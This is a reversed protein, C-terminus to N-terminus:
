ALLKVAIKLVKDLATTVAVVQQLVKQKAKIQAVATAVAAAAQGVPGLTATTDATWNDMARGILIDIEHSLRQVREWVQDAEANKGALRLRLEAEQAGNRVSRLQDIVALKDDTTTPM